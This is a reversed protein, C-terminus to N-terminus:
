ARVAEAVARALAVANIQVAVPDLPLGLGEVVVRAVRTSPAAFLEAAVGDMGDLIRPAGGTAGVVARRVGREPDVVAAGIAHAFEGRKRCIKYYGWRAAASLRPVRVARLIEDEALATTFPGHFFEGSAIRRGGGPGEAVIEGGLAAIASVWDASPDAHALSGGLTGRNRVARYAIDHAVFAMMGRSPDPVKGDEIEAHTTAAGLVVADAEDTIERLAALGAIDVLLEPMALRLNLMPGLSQGGAIVKAFRGGGLLAVADELRDPREYDFAVPKV